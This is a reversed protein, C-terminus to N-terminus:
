HMGLRELMEKRVESEEVRLYHPLVHGMMKEVYADLGDKLKNSKSPMTMARHRIAIELRHEVTDCYFEELTELCIACLMCPAEYQHLLFCCGGDVNIANKRYGIMGPRRHKPYDLIYYDAVITPTHGHVYIEDSLTNGAFRRAYLNYYKVDEERANVDSTHWAHAIRYAVKEGDRGDVEVLKNYPLEDLKQIVQDLLDKDHKFEKWVSEYFDYESYPPQLNLEACKPNKEYWPLYEERYWRIAMEDHNGRVSQYKGSETIHELMWLLTDKQRAGRDMWDGVFIITADSDQNEIKDILTMLEDYCGHIDGVVYHMLEFGGTNKSAVEM